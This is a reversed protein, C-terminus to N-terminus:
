YTLIVFNPMVTGPVENKVRSMCYANLSVQRRKKLRARQTDLEKRLSSTKQTTQELHHEQEQKWKNEVEVRM